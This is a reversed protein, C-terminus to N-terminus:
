QSRAALERVNHGIRLIQNMDKVVLVQKVPREGRDDGGVDMVAPMTVKSYSERPPISALVGASSSRGDSPFPSRGSGLALEKPCQWLWVLPGLAGHHVLQRKRLTQRRAQRNLDGTQKVATWRQWTELYSTWEIVEGRDGRSTEEGGGNDDRLDIGSTDSGPRICARHIKVVAEIRKPELNRMSRTADAVLVDELRTGGVHSRRLGSRIGVRLRLSEYQGSILQPKKSNDLEILVTDEKAISQQELNRNKSRYRTLCRPKVLRSTTARQILIVLGDDEKGDEDIVFAVGTNREPMWQVRSTVVFAGLAATELADRFSTVSCDRYGHRQSQNNGFGPRGQVRGECARRRWHALRGARSQYCSKFQSCCPLAEGRRLKVPHLELEGEGDLLISSRARQM